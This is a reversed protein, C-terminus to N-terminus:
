SIPSLEQGPGRAVMPARPIAAVSFEDVLDRATAAPGAEVGLSRGIMAVLGEASMGAERWEALSLSGDRKALRQGAGDVVLGVSEALELEAGVEMSVLVSPM